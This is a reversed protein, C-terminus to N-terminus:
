KEEKLLEMMLTMAKKIDSKQTKKTGSYLIIITKSDSDISISFYLRLGNKWKLESLRRSLHRAEGFHGYQTIRELRSNIQCQIKLNQFSFWELYKETVLIKFM